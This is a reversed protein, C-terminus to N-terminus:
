MVIHTLYLFLHKIGYLHLASILKLLYQVMVFTMLLFSIKRILLYIMIISFAATASVMRAELVSGETKTDYQIDELKTDRFSGGLFNGDILHIGGLFNRGPFIGVWTKLYEWGPKEGKKEKEKEKKREKKKKKESNKM